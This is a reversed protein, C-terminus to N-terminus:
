LSDDEAERKELVARTCVAAGGLTVRDGYLVRYQEVGQELLDGPEARPLSGTFVYLPKTLEGLPHNLGGLAQGQQGRQRSIIGRGEGAKGDAGTVRVGAMHRFVRGALDEM